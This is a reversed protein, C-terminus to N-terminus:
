ITEYRLNKSSICAIRGSVLGNKDAWIATSLLKKWINYYKPHIVKVERYFKKSIGVFEIAFFLCGQIELFFDSFKSCSILWKIYSVPRRSKPKLVTHSNTSHCKLQTSQIKALIYRKQIPIKNNIWNMPNRWLIRKM